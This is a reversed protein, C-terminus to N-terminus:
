LLDAQVIEEALVAAEGSARAMQDDGGAAEAKEYAVWYCTNSSCSATRGAIWAPHEGPYSEIVSAATYTASCAVETFRGEDSEAYAAAKWCADRFKETYASDDAVRELLDILDWHSPTSFYQWLRRCCAAAFLRLKRESARGSGQLFDLM